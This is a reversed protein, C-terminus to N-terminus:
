LNKFGGAKCTRYKSWSSIDYDFQIYAIKKQYNSLNLSYLQTISTKVFSTEPYQLPIFIVNGGSKLWNSVFALGILPKGSGGPGSILTSSPYPLGEPILKNLWEQDIKLNKM